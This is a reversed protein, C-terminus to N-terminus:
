FTVTFLFTGHVFLREPPAMGAALLFAPWYIGHFKLHSFYYSM